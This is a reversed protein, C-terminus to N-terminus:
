KENLIFSQTIPTRQVLLINELVFLVPIGAAYIESLNSLNCKKMYVAAAATAVVKSIQQVASRCCSACM